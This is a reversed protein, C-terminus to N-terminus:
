VVCSLALGDHAMKLQMDARPVGAQALLLGGGRWAIHCDAPLGCRRAVAM